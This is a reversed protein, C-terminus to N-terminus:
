RPTKKQVAEEEVKLTEQSVEWNKFKKWVAGNLFVM